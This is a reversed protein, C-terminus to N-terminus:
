AARSTHQPLEFEPGTVPPVTERYSAIRLMQLINNASNSHKYVSGNFKETVDKSLNANIFGVGGPHEAAFTELDHVYGNCIVLKRTKALFKFEREGMEPLDAQPWSLQAKKRDLVKQEMQVASKQIVQDGTRNLDSALGIVSCFWILVKTPDYQYWQVTNRYDNPFEHHFNHYGEGNTIIATLIHDRPSRSDDYSAEGFYHAVSNVCFTAHHALTMRLCCAYYFGGRWDGWGFGAICLPIIFGFIFFLTIYHKHQWLVLKDKAIDSMDVHGPKFRPTFIMWGFHAHFFGEHVGYPDHDTDSYRHHARHGRVWWKCSGEGTGAGACLLLAKLISSSSYAKHSFLRHYGATISLTSIMYAAFTLQMTRSHVGTTYLGYASLVPLTLLPLAGIQLHKYFNTWDISERLAIAPGDIKEVVVSVNGDKAAHSEPSM